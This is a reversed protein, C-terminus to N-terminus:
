EGGRKELGILCRVEEKQTEDFMGVIIEKRSIITQMMSLVLVKLNRNPENAVFDRAWLLSDESFYPQISLLLDERAEEGVLHLVDVVYEEFDVYALNMLANIAAHVVKSNKHLLLARLEPIKTEQHYENILNIGLVVVGDNTSSILRSYDKAAANNQKIATIIKISDFEVLYEDLTYLYDLVYDIQKLRILGILSEFHAYPMRENHLREKLDDASGIDNFSSLMKIAWVVEKQEKSKLKKRAYEDLKLDFFLDHTRLRLEGKFNQNFRNLTEVFERKVLKKNVYKKLMALATDRVVKDGYIYDLINSYYNGYHIKKIINAGIGKTRAALTLVFFIVVVIQTFFIFYFLWKSAYPFNYHDHLYDVVNGPSVHFHLISAIIFAIGFLISLMYVGLLTYNSIIYRNQHKDTAIIIVAFVLATVTFLKYFIGFVPAIFALSLGFMKLGEIFFVFALLLVAIAIFVDRNRKFYEAISTKGIM